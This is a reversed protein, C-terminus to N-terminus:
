ASQSFPTWVSSSATHLASILNEWVHKTWELPPLTDYLDLKAQKDGPLLQLSM